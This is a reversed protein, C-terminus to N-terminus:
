WAAGTPRFVGSHHAADVIRDTPPAARRRRAAPVIDLYCRCHPHAPPGDCYRSWTDRGTGAVLPCFSCHKCVGLRWIFDVGEKFAPDTVTKANGLAITAATLGKSVETIAIRQARIHGFVPRVLAELQAQSLTDSAPDIGPTLEDLETPDIGLEALQEDTLHLAELQGRNLYVGRRQGSSFGATRLQSRTLGINTIQTAPVFIGKSQLRRQKQELELEYSTLKRILIDRSGAAYRAGFTAARSRAWSLARGEFSRGSAGASDMHMMWLLVLVTALENNVEKDVRHWFEPPVRRYDPPNGILEILERRHRASLNRIRHKLSREFRDRHIPQTM